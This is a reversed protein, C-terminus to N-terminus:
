WEFMIILMEIKEKM